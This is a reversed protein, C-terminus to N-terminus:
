NFIDDDDDDIIQNNKNYKNIENDNNEIKPLKM